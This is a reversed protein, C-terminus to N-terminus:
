CIDLAQIETLLSDNFIRNHADHIEGRCQIIKNIVSDTLMEAFDVTKM